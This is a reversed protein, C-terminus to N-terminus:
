SPFLSNGHGPKQNIVRISTGSDELKETVTGDGDAPGFRAIQDQIIRAYRTQVGYHARRGVAVPLDDVAAARVAYLDIAARYFLRHQTRVIFDQNPLATQTELVGRRVFNRAVACRIKRPSDDLGQRLRRICARSHWDFGQSRYRNVFGPVRRVRSDAPAARLM